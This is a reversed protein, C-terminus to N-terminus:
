VILLITGVIILFFGVLVGSYSLEKAQYSGMGTIDPFVFIMALGAVILGLGAIKNLVM